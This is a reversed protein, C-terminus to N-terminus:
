GEGVGAAAAKRAALGSRFIVGRIPQLLAVEQLFRFCLSVACSSFAMDLRLDSRVPSTAVSCSLIFVVPRQQALRAHVAGVQGNASPITQIREEIRGNQPLHHSACERRHLRLALSRAAPHLLVVDAQKRMVVALCRTPRGQLRLDPGFHLACDRM